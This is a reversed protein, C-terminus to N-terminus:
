QALFVMKLVQDVRKMSKQVGPDDIYPVIYVLAKNLREMAKKRKGQLDKLEQPPNMDMDDLEPYKRKIDNLGPALLEMQQSFRDM